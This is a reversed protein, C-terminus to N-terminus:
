MLPIYFALPFFCGHLLPIEKHCERILQGIVDKEVVLGKLSRSVAPLPSSGVPNSLDAKRREADESGSSEKNPTAEAQAQQQQAAAHGGPGNQKQM